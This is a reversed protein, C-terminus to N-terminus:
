RTLLDSLFQGTRQSTGASVEVLRGKLAQSSWVAKIHQKDSEKSDYSTFLMAAGAIFFPLLLALFPSIASKLDPTKM